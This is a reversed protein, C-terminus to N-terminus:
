GDELLFRLVEREFLEPATRHAIHGEGPLVVVRGDPLAAELAEAADKQGAPSDGGVLLLTPSSFGSLRAPDFDSVYGEEAQLEHPITPAMAVRAPWVPQSRLMEIQGPSMM